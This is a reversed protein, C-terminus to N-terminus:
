RCKQVLLNRILNAGDRTQDVNHEAGKIEHWYKESDIANFYIKATENAKSSDNESNVFIATTKYHYDRSETPSVLSTDRLQKEREPSRRQSKCYDGKHLWGMSIDVLNRGAADDRWEAGRLGPDNTGFCSVDFRSAPPGGTMIAVDLIDEMGYVALGYAIQFSGASNGQACVTKKNDALNAVAWRVSQDYGCMADKIGHGEARGPWGERWALEFVQYGNETLYKVTSRQEPSQVSYMMSSRGGTTLFVTGSPGSSGIKKLQITRAPIGSCAVDLTYCTGGTCPSTANHTVTDSSPYQTFDDPESTLPTSLKSTSLIGEIDNLIAEATDYNGQRYAAKASQFKRRLDPISADGQRKDMFEARLDYFRAKLDAREGTEPESSGTVSSASLFIALFISFLRSLRMRELKPM